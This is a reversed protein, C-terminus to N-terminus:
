SERKAREAARACDLAEAVRVSNLDDKHIVDCAGAAILRTRHAPTVSGSVVIIAGDFGARRLEPITLLPEAAPNRLDGLFALSPMKRRLAGLADALSGASRILVQYGFLVRLTATLREADAAKDEIILVESPLEQHARSTALSSRKTLHGCGTTEEQSRTAEPEASQEGPTCRDPFM